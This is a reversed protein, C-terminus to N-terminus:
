RKQTTLFKLNNKASYYRDVRKNWIDVYKDYENGELVFEQYIGFNAPKTDGRCVMLVVGKRIGTNYIKNHAESYAALQCYYDDIYERKKPKRTNKFDLIAPSGEHIGIADTTGAYLEPYYMMVETGWIESVKSLGQEIVIDSLKKAQVRIINNGGPREENKIYCELHKHILTGIDGSERLIRGAEVEGHWEKWGELAKVTDDAKTASLISTVSPLIEGTPTIYKRGDIDSEIRNIEPYSFKPVLLM